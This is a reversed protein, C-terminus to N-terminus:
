SMVAESLSEPIGSYTLLTLYRGIDALFTRRTAARTRPMAASLAKCTRFLRGFRGARGKALSMRAARAVALVVAAGCSRSRMFIRRRIISPPGSFHFALFHLGADM